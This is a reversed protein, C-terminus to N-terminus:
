ALFEFWTDHTDVGPLLDGRANTKYDSLGLGTMAVIVIKDQLAAPGIRGRMVDLASVYRDLAPASFNLAVLVM